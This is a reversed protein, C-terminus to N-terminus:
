RSRMSWRPSFAASDMRVTSVSSSGASPAGSLTDACSGRYWCDLSRGIRDLLLFLHNILGGRRFYHHEQEPPVTFLERIHVARPNRAAARRTCLVLLPVMVTRSWYSVKDLHFPSWRPLLMIEVPIYPVGRWPLQQFMALTIRTFVNAHAAGGHELIAARARRMHPAQHADGALKLAYYVKVSCSLDFAGGHYLPWGGHEAQRERLYAALKRELVADIEDLFHMMLIFEAPITCDAELEFLWHGDARQLALLAERARQLAIELSRAAASEAAPAIRIGVAGDSAM